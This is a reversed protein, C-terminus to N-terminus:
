RRKFQQSLDEAPKQQRRWDALEDGGAKSYRMTIAISSHNLLRSVIHIPVGAKLLYTATSHRLMHPSFETRGVGALKLWGEMRSNVWEPDIDDDGLAFKTQNYRSPDYGERWDLLRARGLRAQVMSHLPGLFSQADGGILHPLADAFVGVMEGYSTIDDGGGKRVFGVLRQAPVSVHRPQLETIEFRRLGVFFGLGLVVRADDPLRDCEWVRRWTEMPVPKPNENHVAATVLLEAPNRVIHGRSHLYKFFSSLVAADKARSAPKGITGGARGGRVRTVWSELHEIRAAELPVPGLADLFRQLRTMYDYLSTQRRGRVDRQWTLYDM